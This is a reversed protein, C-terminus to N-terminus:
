FLVEDELYVLQDSDDPFNQFVVQFFPVGTGEFALPPGLLQRLEFLM